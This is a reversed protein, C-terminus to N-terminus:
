IVHVQTQINASVKEKKRQFSNKKQMKKSSSFMIEM